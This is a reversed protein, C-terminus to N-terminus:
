GQLLECHFFGQNGQGHQSSGASGHSLRGDGHVTHSVQRQGLGVANRSLHAAIAHHVVAVATQAHATNFIQAATQLSGEVEFM